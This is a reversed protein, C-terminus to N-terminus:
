ATVEDLRSGSQGLILSPQLVVKFLFHIAEQLWSLSGAVTMERKIGQLSYLLLHWCQPRGCRHPPPPPLDSSVFMGSHSYIETSTHFPSLLM